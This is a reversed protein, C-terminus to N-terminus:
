DTNLKLTHLFKSVVHIMDEKARWKLTDFPLNMHNTVVIHHIGHKLYTSPEGSLDGVVAIVKANTVKARNAVGIVVKGRLSQADLKGEGTIIYDSNKALADFGMVDLVTEIGMQIKSNLFVKAGYGMGGAAGAGKFTPKDFGIDRAVIHALHILNDDLMEVMAVDAGKQPGFVHAAGDLGYLPNDIDCMTVFEINKIKPNIKSIDISKIRNLTGGVPIFAHGTEDLFRVGLAAAFGCGADNTASGGLGLIIKEVGQEAAHLILEGVGYTTTASPNLKSEVLPLGAASAMEIIATKDDDIMGYFSPITQHYPGTVDTFIKKGSSAKLFADVSGEGGDAVPIKTIIADQFVSEIQHEIIDCVQTSSLTGKFSDPIIIFRTM